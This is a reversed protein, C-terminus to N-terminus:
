HYIDLLYCILVISSIVSIVKSKMATTTIGIPEHYACNPCKLDNRTSSQHAGDYTIYELMTPHKCSVCNTFPGLTYKVAKLDKLVTHLLQNVYQM